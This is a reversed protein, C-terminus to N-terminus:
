QAQMGNIKGLLSQKTNELNEYMGSSIGTQNRSVNNYVQPQMTGEPLITPGHHLPVGSQIGGAYGSTDNTTLYNAIKQKVLKGKSPHIPSEQSEQIIPGALAQNQFKSNIAENTFQKNTASTIPQQHNHIKHATQCLKQDKAPTNLYVNSHTTALNNIDYYNFYPDKTNM